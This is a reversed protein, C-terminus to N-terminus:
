DQEVSTDDRSNRSDTYIYDHKRELPIYFTIRKNCKLCIIRYKSHPRSDYLVTNPTTVAIDFVTCKSHKGGFARKFWAHAESAIYNMSRSRANYLTVDTM